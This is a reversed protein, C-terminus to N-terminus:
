TVAGPKSRMGRFTTLPVPHWDKPAAPHSIFPVCSRRGSGAARGRRDLACSQAEGCSPQFPVRGRDRHGPRGSERRVPLWTECADRHLATTRPLGRASAQAPWRPTSDTNSISLLTRRGSADASNTAPSPQEPNRWCPRWSRFRSHRSNSVCATSEFCVGNLTSRSPDSASSAQMVLPSCLANGEGTYGLNPTVQALNGMLKSPKRRWIIKRNTVSPSELIAASYWPNRINRRHSDQAGM